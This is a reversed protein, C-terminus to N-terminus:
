FIPKVWYGENKISNPHKSWAPHNWPGWIVQPLMQFRYLLHQTENQKRQWISFQYLGDNEYIYLCGLKIESRADVRFNTHDPGLTFGQSWIIISEHGHVTKYSYMCIHSFISKGNRWNRMFGDYKWRQSSISRSTVKMQRTSVLDSNSQYNRFVVVKM